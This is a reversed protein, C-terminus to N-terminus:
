HNQTPPSGRVQEIQKYFDIKQNATMRVHFLVSDDNCHYCCNGEELKPKEEKPAEKLLEHTQCFERFKGFTGIMQKGKIELLELLNKKEFNEIDIPKSVYKICERLGSELDDIRQINLNKAGESVKAWERKLLKEDIFKKRFVVSHLHCHNGEDSNVNEVTFLGGDFYDRFFPKRIMKRFSKLLRERSKELREGKIKKQTLTLLCPTVKVRSLEVFALTYPLYKKNYKNSRRNACLVCFRVNCRHNPTESVIHQGCTLVDSYSGCLAMSQAIKKEGVEHLLGVLKNKTKYKIELREAKSKKVKFKSKRKLESDFVHPLKGKTYIYSSESLQGNNKLPYEAKAIPTFVRKNNHEFPKGKVKGLFQPITDTNM